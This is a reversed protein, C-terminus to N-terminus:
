ADADMRHAPMDVGCARALAPNARVPVAAEVSAAFDAGWALGQAVGAAAAAAREDATAMDHTRQRRTKAIMHDLEEGPEVDSDEEAVPDIEDGPEVGSDEEAVASAISEPIAPDM